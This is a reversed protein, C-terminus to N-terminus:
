PIPVNKLSDLVVEQGIKINKASYLRHGLLYPATKQVDEPIVFTRGELYAMAKSALLLDKGSRPSFSGRNDNGRLHSLINLVYDLLTESVEIKNIIKKIELLDVGQFKPFFGELTEEINDMTLIKKEIEREPLGLTLGMFFRDKQSEPIPFTGVQGYPNQTAMVIFPRDMYFTQGEVTVNKEEMVELLASQTKPPARNLEDALILNSFIPGKRFVFDEEKKLFVFNGLIDSPLLDNTFQIRSFDLGLLRGLLKVLTTKGVGPIDEILLHGECLISILAMEIKEDQGFIIKNATNLIQNLKERM